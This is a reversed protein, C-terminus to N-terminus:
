KLEKEIVQIVLAMAYDFGDLWLYSEHKVDKATLEVVARLAKKTPNTGYMYSANGEEDINFNIPLNEIRELLEDYTM